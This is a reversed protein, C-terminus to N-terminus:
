CKVEYRTELSMFEHANANMNLMLCPLPKPQLEVVSNLNIYKTKIIGKIQM